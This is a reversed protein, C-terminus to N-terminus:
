LPLAFLKLKGKRALKLYYNFQEDSLGPKGLNRCAAKYVGFSAKTTFENFPNSNKNFNRVEEVMDLVAEHYVKQLETM